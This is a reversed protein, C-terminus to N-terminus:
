VYPTTPLTLHTYSVSGPRGNDDSEELAVLSVTHVPFSSAIGDLLQQATQSSLKEGVLDVGDERGLFTLAPVTDVLGSVQLHDGMRYRLLGSGTSIVPAVQQGVRLSWAPIVKGSDLDEFEYVHSQYALLHQHQYPSDRICM